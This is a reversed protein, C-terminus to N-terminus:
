FVLPKQAYLVFYTVGGDTERWEKRIGSILADFEEETTVVGYGGGDLVPTKLGAMVNAINTGNEFESKGFPTFKEVCGINVFHTDELIKSLTGKLDLPLNKQKWLASVISQLKITNPGALPLDTKHEQLEVWGGPKLVRFIEAIASTWMEKTLAAILLRQHVFTYKSTWEAPLSTISHTNFHMNSPYTSPFLRSTLDVGYIEVKESLTNALELMWLGTYHAKKLNKSRLFFPKGTGAGSEM